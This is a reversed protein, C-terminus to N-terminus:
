HQAAAESLARPDTPMDPELSKLILLISRLHTHAINSERERVSTQSPLFSDKSSEGKDLLLTDYVQGDTSWASADYADVYADMWTRDNSPISTYKDDGKLRKFTYRNVEETVECCIEAVDRAIHRRIKRKCTQKFM